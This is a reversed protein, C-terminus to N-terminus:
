ISLIRIGISLPTIAPARDEVFLTSLNYNAYLQVASFGIRGTVGYRVKNLNFDDKVKVKGVEKQKQKTHSGILVGAYAGVSLQFNKSKKGPSTQFNLMLPIQFYNATLQNKKYVVGSSDFTMMVTDLQPVMTYSDQFNMQMVDIDLSTMLNVHSGKDIGIRTPFFHMGVHNSKWTNTELGKYEIPLNPNGDLLFLNAGLDLDLFDVDVRRVRKKKGISKGIGDKIDQKWIVEKSERDKIVIFSGKGVMIETTDNIASDDSSDSSVSEESASESSSSSDDNNQAHLLGVSLLMIIFFIRKM